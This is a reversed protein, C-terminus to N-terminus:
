GTWAGGLSGGCLVPGAQGEQFKRKGWLMHWTLGERRFSMGVPYESGAFTCPKGLGQVLALSKGFRAQTIKRFNFV